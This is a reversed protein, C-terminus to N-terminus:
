YDEDEAKMKTDTSKEKKTDDEDDMEEDENMGRVYMVNNCRILIDGLKGSFVGDVYEDAKQLALNMYADTSTLFGRYELGWKLKVIAKKAILSNLFPKPNIPRRDSM